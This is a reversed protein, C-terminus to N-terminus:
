KQSLEKKLLISLAIVENSHIIDYDLSGYKMGNLKMLCQLKSDSDLLYWITYVSQQGSKLCTNGAALSFSPPCEQKTTSYVAVRALTQHVVLEKSM